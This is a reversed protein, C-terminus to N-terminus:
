EGDELYTSVDVLIGNCIGVTDSISSDDYHQLIHIMALKVTSTATHRTIHITM